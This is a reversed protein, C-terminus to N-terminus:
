RNEELHSQETQQKPLSLHDQWSNMSAMGTSEIGRTKRDNARRAVNNNNQSEHNAFSSERISLSTGLAQSWVAADMESWSADDLLLSWPALSVDLRQKRM